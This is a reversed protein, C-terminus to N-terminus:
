WGHRARARSKSPSPEPTPAPTASHPAPAPSRGGVGRIAAGWGRPPEAAAPRNAGPRPTAAETVRPEPVARGGTAEGGGGVSLPVSRVVFLFSSVTHSPGFLTVDCPHSPRLVSFRQDLIRPSSDM